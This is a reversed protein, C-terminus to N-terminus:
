EIINRPSFYCQSARDDTVRGFQDRRNAASTLVSTQWLAPGITSDAPDNRCSGNRVLTFLRYHVVMRVATRGFLDQFGVVGGSFSQSRLRGLLPASYPSFSTAWALSRVGSAIKRACNLLTSMQTSSAAATSEAQAPWEM